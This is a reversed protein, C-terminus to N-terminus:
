QTAPPERSPERLAEPRLPKLKPQQQQAKAYAAVRAAADPGLMKGFLELVDAELEEIEELAEDIRRRLEEPTPQDVNWGYEEVSPCLIRL